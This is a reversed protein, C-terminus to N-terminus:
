SFRKWLVRIFFYFFTFMFVAFNCIHNVFSEKHGIYLRLCGTNPVHLNIFVYLIITLIKTLLILSAALFLLFGEKNKCGKRGWSSNIKPRFFSYQGFLGPATNVIFVEERNKTGFFEQYLCFFQDLNKQSYEFLLTSFNLFVSSSLLDNWSQM